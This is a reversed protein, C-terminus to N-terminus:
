AMREFTEAEVVRCKRKLWFRRHRKTKTEATAVQSQQVHFDDLLSEFALMINLDNGGHGVHAIFHDLVIAGYYIHFVGSGERGGIRDRFDALGDQGGLHEDRGFIDTSDHLQEVLPASYILIGLVKVGAPGQQM